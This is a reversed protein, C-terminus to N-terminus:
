FKRIPQIPRETDMHCRTFLYCQVLSFFILACILQNEEAEIKSTRKNMLAERFDFSREQM